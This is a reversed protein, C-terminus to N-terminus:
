RSTDDGGGGGGLTFKSGVGITHIHKCVSLTVNM